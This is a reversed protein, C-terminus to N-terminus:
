GRRFAPRGAWQHITQWCLDNLCVRGEDDQGAEKILGQGGLGVERNFRLM